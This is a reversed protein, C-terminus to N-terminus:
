QIMMGLIEKVIRQIIWYGVGTIECLEELTIRENEIQMKVEEVLSSTALEHCILCVRRAMM